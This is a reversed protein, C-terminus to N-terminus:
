APGGKAMNMLSRPLGLPKEGPHNQTRGDTPPAVTYIRANRFFRRMPLARAMGRGATGRVNELHTVNPRGGRIGVTDIEDTHIGPGPRPILFTM